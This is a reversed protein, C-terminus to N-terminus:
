ETWVGLDIYRRSKNADSQDPKFALLQGVKPPYGKEDSQFYRILYSHIDSYQEDRLAETWLDVQASPNSPVASEPYLLRMERLIARTEDRTM